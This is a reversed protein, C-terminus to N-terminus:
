YKREELLEETVPILTKIGTATTLLMNGEQAYCKLPLYNNKERLSEKMELKKVAEQAYAPALPSSEFDVHVTGERVANLGDEAAGFAIIIVDGDIGYSKGAADLAECVGAVEKDDYCMIVDMNAYKELYSEMVQRGDNQIMGHSDRALIKWNRNREMYRAFGEKRGEKVSSGVAGNVILIRIMESGRGKSDLYKELWRGACRGEQIYDPGYWAQYYREDCDIAGNLVIIPIRAHHAEKLAATWGTDSIPDILIYDVQERIFNRVADVQKEPDGDADVFYLEYGNDEHFTEMCARTSAIRWDSEHGAQVFGVKILTRPLLALAEEEISRDDSETDMGTIVGYYPEKDDQDSCAALLAPMGAALAAAM